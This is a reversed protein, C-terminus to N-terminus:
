DGKGVLGGQGDWVTEFLMGEEEGHTIWLKM